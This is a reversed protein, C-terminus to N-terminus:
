TLVLKGSEEGHSFRPSERPTPNLAGPSYSIMYEIARVADKRHKKPLLANFRELAEGSGGSLTGGDQVTGALGSPRRRTKM